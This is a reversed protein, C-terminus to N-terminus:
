PPSSQARFRSPLNRIDQELMGPRGYRWRPNHFIAMLCIAILETLLAAMVVDSLFHGGFAMRLFAVGVAFVIAGMLASGAYAAPVLTAATVMAVAGSVEGSVFSCNVNCAGSTDWWPKFQSTGGFETVQVPRPRHWNDKLVVNVLLGPGLVFTLLIAALSRADVNMKRLPAIAPALLAVLCGFAVMIPLWLGIQRLILATTDFRMVFGTATTGFLHATALDIQPFLGFVIGSAVTLALVVLVPRIGKM